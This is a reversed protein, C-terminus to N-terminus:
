TEYASKKNTNAVIYGEARRAGGRLLPLFNANWYSDRQQRVIADHPKNIRNGVRYDRFKPLATALNSILFFPNLKNDGTGMTKTKSLHANKEILEAGSGKPKLWKGKKLPFLKSSVSSGTPHAGARNLILKGQLPLERCPSPDPIINSNVVRDDWYKSQPNNYKITLKKQAELQSNFRLSFGSWVGPSSAALKLKGEELLPTGRKCRHPPASITNLCWRGGSKM